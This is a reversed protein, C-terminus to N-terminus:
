GLRDTPRPVQASDWYDTRKGILGAEDVVFVFVGRVDLPLGQLVATMRYPVACRSGDVLLQEPEYHLDAFAGLFEDLAARYAARGVRSVGGTSTHENVFDSSVCAAIRDADHANLADLYATM